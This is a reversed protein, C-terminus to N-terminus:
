SVQCIEVLHSSHHCKASPKNCERDGVGNHQKGAKTTILTITRPKRHHTDSHHLSLACHYTASDSLRLGAITLVSIKKATDLSASIHDGTRNRGEGSPKRHFLYKMGEGPTQRYWSVSFDQGCFGSYQCHLNITLDSPKFNLCISIKVAT